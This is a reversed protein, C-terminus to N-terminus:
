IIIFPGFKKFDLKNNPQKITINKCHLYMKDEKKFSSRKMRKINYYKAM